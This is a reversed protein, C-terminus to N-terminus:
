RKKQSLDSKGIDRAIKDLIGNVFKVGDSYGGGRHNSKIESSGSFCKTLNIAENIVVRSPVSEQYVLEFCGLRLINRDIMSMREIEWFTSASTILSDIHEIKQSIGNLLLQTYAIEEPEAPHRDVNLVGDKERSLSQFGVQPLLLLTKGKKGEALEAASRREEKNSPDYEKRIRKLLIRASLDSIIGSQLFCLTDFLPTWDIELNILEQLQPERLLWHAVVSPAYLEQNELIERTQQCFFDFLNSFESDTVLRFADMPEINDHLYSRYREIEKEEHLRQEHYWAEPLELQAYFLPLISEQVGSIFTGRVTERRLDSWSSSPTSGLKQLYLLEKLKESGWEEKLLVSQEMQQLKFSFGEAHLDACYLMQLAFGRARSRSAM